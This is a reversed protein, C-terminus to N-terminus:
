IKMLKSAHKKAEEKTKAIYTQQNWNEDHSNVVYGNNAKRITVNAEKNREPAALQNTKKQQKKKPKPTPKKKPM